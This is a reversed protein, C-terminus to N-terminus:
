NAIIGKKSSTPLDVPKQKISSTSKEKKVELDSDTTDYFLFNDFDSVNEASEEEGEDTNDFDPLRKMILKQQGEEESSFCKRNHKSDRLPHMRQQLQGISSVGNCFNRTSKLKKVIKVLLKSIADLYQFCQRSTEDQLDDGDINVLMSKLLDFFNLQTFKSLLQFVESNHSSPNSLLGVSQSMCNLLHKMSDLSLLLNEQNGKDICSQIFTQYNSYVPSSLIKVPGDKHASIEFLLSFLISSLGLQHYSTLNMNSSLLYAFCKDAYSIFGDEEKPMSDNQVLGLLTSVLHFFLQCNDFKLKKIKNILDIENDAETSNNKLSLSASEDDSSADSEGSNVSFGSLYQSISLFHARNSVSDNKPIFIEM